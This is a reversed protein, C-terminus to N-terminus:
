IEFNRNQLRVFERNALFKEMTQNGYPMKIMNQSKFHKRPVVKLGIFEHKLKSRPDSLEEM